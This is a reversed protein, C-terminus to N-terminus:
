ECTELLIYLNLTNECYEKLAVIDAKTLKLEWFWFLEFYVATNWLYDNNISNKKSNCQFEKNDNSIHSVFLHRRQDQFSKRTQLYLQIGEAM